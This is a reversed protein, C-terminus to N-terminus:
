KDIVSIVVFTRFSLFTYDLSCLIYMFFGVNRIM